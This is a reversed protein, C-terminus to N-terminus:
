IQGPRRSRHRIRDRGGHRATQFAEEVFTTPNVLGFAPGTFAPSCRKKKGTKRLPRTENINNKSSIEPEYKHVRKRKNTIITYIFFFIVCSSYKRKIQGWMTKNENHKPKSNPFSTLLM